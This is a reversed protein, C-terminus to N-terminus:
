HFVCGSGSMGSSTITLTACNFTSLSTSTGPPGAPGQAGPAGPTGTVSTFPAGNSSILVGTATGCIVTKGVAPTDCSSSGNIFTLSSGTPTIPQALVILELVVIVILVARAIKLTKM